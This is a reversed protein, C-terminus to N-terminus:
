KKNLLAKLRKIEEEQKKITDDKKNLMKNYEKHLYEFQQITGKKTEVKEKELKENESIIVNKEKTLQNIKSDREKEILKIKNNQEEIKLNSKMRVTEIEKEKNNLKEELTQYNEKKGTAKNYKKLDLRVAEERYNNNINSNYFQFSFNEKFRDLKLNKLLRNRYTFNYRKNENGNKYNVNREENFGKELDDKIKQNYTYISFIFKINRNDYIGNFFEISSVITDGLNTCLKKIDYNSSSCFIAYEFLIQEHNYKYNTLYIKRNKLAYLDCIKYNYSTNENSINIKDNDNEGNGKQKNRARNIQNIKNMYIKKNEEQVNYNTNPKVYKSIDIFNDYIHIISKNDLFMTNAKLLDKLSKGHQMNQMIYFAKFLNVDYIDFYKNGMSTRPINNVDDIGTILSILYKKFVICKNNTDYYQKRGIMNEAELQSIVRNFSRTTYVTNNSNKIKLFIIFERAQKQVINGNFLYYLVYLMDKNDKYLKNRRNITEQKLAPM